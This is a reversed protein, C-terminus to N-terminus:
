SGKIIKCLLTSYSQEVSDRPLSVQFWTREPQSMKFFTHLQEYKLRIWFIPEHKIGLFLFVQLFHAFLSQSPSQDQPVLPLFPLTSYRPDM